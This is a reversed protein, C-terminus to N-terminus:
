CTNFGSWRRSYENMERKWACDGPCTVAPLQSHSHDIFSHKLTFYSRDRGTLTTRHMVRPKKWYNRLPPQRTTPDFAAQSANPVVYRSRSPLRYISYSFDFHLYPPPPPTWFQIHSNKIPLTRPWGSYTHAVAPLNNHRPEFPIPPREAAPGRGRGGTLLLHIILHSILWFCCKRHCNPRSSHSFSFKIIPMIIIIQNTPAPKTTQNWLHHNSKISM